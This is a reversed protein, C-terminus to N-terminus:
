GTLWAVGVMEGASQTHLRIFYTILYLLPQPYLISIFFDFTKLYYLYSCQLMFDMKIYGIMFHRSLLYQTMIDVLHYCPGAMRIGMLVKGCKTQHSIAKPSIYLQLKYSLFISILIWFAYTQHCLPYVKPLNRYLLNSKM